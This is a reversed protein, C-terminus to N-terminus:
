QAGVSGPAHGRKMKGIMMPLPHLKGDLLHSFQPESLVVSPRQLDFSLNSGM